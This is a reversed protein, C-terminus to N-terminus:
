PPVLLEFANAEEVLMVHSGKAGLEVFRREGL